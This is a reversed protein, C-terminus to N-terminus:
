KRIVIEQVESDYEVQLREGKKINMERVVEAPITVQGSVKNMNMKFVWLKKM